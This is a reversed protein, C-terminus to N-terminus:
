LRLAKAHTCLHANWVASSEYLMLGHTVWAVNSVQPTALARTHRKSPRLRENFLHHQKPTPELQSTYPRLLPSRGPRVKQSLLLLIARHLRSHLARRLPRDVLHEGM